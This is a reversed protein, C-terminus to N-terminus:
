ILGLVEGLPGASRGLALPLDAATTGPSVSSLSPLHKVRMPVQGCIYKPGIPGWGVGPPSALSHNQLGTSALRHTEPFVIYLLLQQAGRLLHPLTLDFQYVDLSINQPLQRWGKALSYHSVRSLGLPAIVM